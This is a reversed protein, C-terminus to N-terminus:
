YKTLKDELVYTQNIIEKQTPPFVGRELRQGRNHLFPFRFCILQKGQFHVCVMARLYKKRKLYVHTYFNLFFLKVM